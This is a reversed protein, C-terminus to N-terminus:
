KELSPKNTKKGLSIVSDPSKGKANALSLIFSAIPFEFKNPWKEFNPFLVSNKRRLHGLRGLLLHQPFVPMISKQSIFYCFQFLPFYHISFSLKLQETMDLEKCGWLTYGALSRQGYSKGPLFVPTPLWERRWSIKGAWLDFGPRQVAPLNKVTQALNPARPFGWHISLAM